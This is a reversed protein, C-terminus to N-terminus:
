FDRGVIQPKTIDGGIFSVLFRTGPPIFKKPYFRAVDKPLDIIINSGFTANGNMMSTDENELNNTSVTTLIEIPTRPQQPVLSQLYFSQKGPNYKDCTTTLIAIETAKVSQRTNNDMTSM